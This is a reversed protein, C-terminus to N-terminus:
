RAGGLDHLTRNTLTEFQRYLWDCNERSSFCAIETNITSGGSADAIVQRCSVAPHARNAATTFTLQRMSKNLMFARYEPTGDLAEVDPQHLIDAQLDAVTAAKLGCVDVTGKGATHIGEPM